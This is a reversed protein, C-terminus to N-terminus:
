KPSAPLRAARTATWEQTAQVRAGSLNVEGEIADGLVRGNFSHRVTAGRLETVATFSLTDGRLRASEIKVERGATSLTGEIKQYRQELLLQYDISQGATRLNWQWRGAAEAPVIWLHITSNGGAGEGFKDKVYMTATEDATWDGLDFDHSVIRTGPKLEGLLRARLKLNVAPLLYMTLVSADAIAAAFLDQTVFTVRDSVGQLRALERSRKVLEEDHDVGFGRAGLSKAATRVIRGDGSGLDIVYDNKNVRAMALMRDVVEPPTPVFPVQARAPWGASALVALCVLLMSAHRM